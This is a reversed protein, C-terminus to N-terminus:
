PGLTLRWILSLDRWMQCRIGAAGSIILCRVNSHCSAHATLIPKATMIHDALRACTPRDKHRSAIVLVHDHLMCRTYRTNVLVAYHRKLGGAAVPTTEAAGTLYLVSSLTSLLITVAACTAMSPISAPQAQQVHKLTMVTQSRM